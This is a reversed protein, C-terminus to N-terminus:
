IAEQGGPDAVEGEPVTEDLGTTDDIPTTAEVRSTTMTSGKRANGGAIYVTVRDGVQITNLAVAAETYYSPTEPSPLGAADAGLAQAQAEYATMAAQYAVLEQAYAEMDKPTQRVVVAGEGLVVEQHEPINELLRIITPVGEQMIVLRDARVEVVEGGVAVNVPATEETGAEEYFEPFLEQAAMRLEEDSAPANQSQPLAVGGGAFVMGLILGLVLGSVGWILPAQMGSM